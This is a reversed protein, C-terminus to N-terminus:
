QRTKRRNTSLSQKSQNQMPKIVNCVTMLETFEDEGNLIPSILEFTRNGTISCDHIIKLHNRISHSYGEIECRIGAEALKNRVVTKDVNYAEFKV